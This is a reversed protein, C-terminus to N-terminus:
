SYRAQIGQSTEEDNGELVVVVELRRSRFYTELEQQTLASAGSKREGGGWLGGSLAGAQANKRALLHDEDAEGRVGDQDSSASPSLLSAAETENDVGVIGSGQRMGYVREAERSMAATDSLERGGNELDIEREFTDPFCYSASSDHDTSFVPQPEGVPSTSSGSLM